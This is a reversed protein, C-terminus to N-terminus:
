KAGNRALLHTQRDLLHDLRRCLRRRLPFLILLVREANEERTMILQDADDLQGFHGAARILGTPQAIIDVAGVIPAAICGFGHAQDNVKGESNELDVANFRPNHRM